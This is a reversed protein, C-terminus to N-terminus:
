KQVESWSVNLLPKSPFLWFVCSRPLLHDSLVYSPPVPDFRVALPRIRRWIRKIGAEAARGPWWSYEPPPCCRRGASAGSGENRGDGRGIGDGPPDPAGAPRDPAGGSARFAGFDFIPRGRGRKFHSAQPALHRNRGSSVTPVAELM